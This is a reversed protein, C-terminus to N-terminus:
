LIIRNQNRAFKATALEDPKHLATPSFRDIHVGNILLLLKLTFSEFDTIECNNLSSALNPLSWPSTLILIRHKVASIIRATSSQAIVHPRLGGLIGAGGSGSL